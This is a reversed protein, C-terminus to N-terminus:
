TRAVKRDVSESPRSTFSLLDMKTTAAMMLTCQDRGGGGRRGGAEGVEEEELEEEEAPGEAFWEPGCFPLPPILHILVEETMSPLKRAWAMRLVTM